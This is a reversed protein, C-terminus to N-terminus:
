PRGLAVIPACSLLRQLARVFTKGPYAQRKRVKAHKLWKREKEYSTHVLIDIIIGIRTLLSKLDISLITDVALGAIDFTLLSMRSAKEIVTKVGKLDMEFCLSSQVQLLLPALM